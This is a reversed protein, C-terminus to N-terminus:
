AAAPTASINIRKGLVGRSGDAWVIAGLDAEGRDDFLTEGQLEGANIPVPETLITIQGNPGREFNRLAQGTRDIFFRPPDVLRVIKPATLTVAAIGASLTIPAADHGSIVVRDGGLFDPLEIPENDDYAINMSQTLRRLWNIRQERTSGALPIMKLTAAILPDIKPATGM